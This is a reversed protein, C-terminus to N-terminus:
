NHLVFVDANLYGDSELEVEGGLDILMRICSRVTAPSLGTADTLYLITAGRRCRLISAIKALRAWLSKMDEDFDAVDDVDYFFQSFQYELATRDRSKVVISKIRKESSDADCYTGFTELKSMQKRWSAIAPKLTLGFRRAEMFPRDLFCSTLCRQQWM